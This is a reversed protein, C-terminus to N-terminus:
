GLRKQIYERVKPALEYSRWPNSKLTICVSFADRDTYGKLERYIRQRAEPNKEAIDALARIAFLRHQTIVEDEGAYLEDPTFSGNYPSDTRKGTEMLTDLADVAGLRGLLYIASTARTYVYKLSSNPIFVDPEQAMELLVPIARKDGILGLALATHRRLNQNESALGPVLAETATEGLRRASWIAIGPSDSQLGKLIEETDTMFTIRNEPVVPGLTRVIFGMDNTEDLCGSERLIASLRGYDAEKLATGAELALYCIEAAAEGCKELDSKMRVCSALNHDVSLCRGAVMLNDYERPILAGAPVAVSFLLGWLGAAAYWDVLLEDEFAIDKGHNDVNSFAYFLPKETRKGDLVTDSFRLIEEGCIMRGERIGLISSIAVYKTKGIYDPKLYIGLTNADLYAKGVQRCDNQNVYGADRNVAQRRLKEDLVVSSNTYPQTQGDISRGQMTACGALYCVEAEGTADIVTKAGVTKEAGKMFLRLGKVQRDELYVGTVICEYNITAGAKLAEEDMVYIKSDCFANEVYLTEDLQRAKQNIDCYLGGKSGFYYGAITGLTGTGGMANLRELGMVKLGRRAAAILAVAGATGLGAVVVDYTEDFAITTETCVFKGNIRERLLM